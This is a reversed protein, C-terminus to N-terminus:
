EVTIRSLASRDGAKVSVFYIGPHLNSLDISTKFEGPSHSYKSTTLVKGLVDTVEIQIQKEDTTLEINLIGSTPNPFIKFHDISTQNTIGVGMTVTITKSATDSVCNTSNKETVNLTGTGINAFAVSVTNTGNGSQINGNLVFWNYSSGSNNGVTFNNAQGRPVTSLGTIVPTAPKPYVDFKVTDTTPCVPAGTGSYQKYYTYSLINTSPSILVAPKLPDFFYHKVSGAITSDVGNGTWTSYQGNADYPAPLWNHYPNNRAGDYLLNFVGGNSCWKVDFGAIVYPNGYVIVEAVSNMVCGGYSGPAKYLFNIWNSFGTTNPYNISDVPLNTLSDIWVKPISDQIIAGTPNFSWIGTGGPQNSIFNNLLAIKASKCVKVPAPQTLVPLSNVTVIISSDYARCGDLDRVQLTYRTTAPINISFSNGTYFPGNLPNAFTDPSLFWRYSYPVRGGHANYIFTLWNGSCVNTDNVSITLPTDVIKITDYFIKQLGSPVSANLKVLYNGAQSFNLVPTTTVNSFTDANALSYNNPVKSVTWVSNISSQLAGSQTYNCQVGFCGKRTQHIVMNLNNVVNVAFSMTIRGPNPCRSDKATVTFYWPISSIMTTDPTWCFKKSDERPGSIKRLSDVYNSAFTAGYPSLVGDWTLFTTDSVPPTSYPSFDTDKGIIDFCLQQGAFASWFLKPQQANLPNPPNTKLWPSKNAPCQQLWMLMDRTTSGILTPVGGITKWQKVMVAVEGVFYGSGSYPPTFSIDGSIFDCNIGLPSPATKVGGTYPMPADYSYPATYTVSSGAGALAPTFSYSLSDHDPDIAGMNYHFQMGGCIVIVPDNKFVPSSNCPAVCRNFITEIYFTNGAPGTNIAGSRCCETLSIRVMCCTTPVSLSGPNFIGQFTYKEVGPTYTGATICGMNNCVSKSSPCVSVNSGADSVSILSVNFTSFSTGNCTADAGTVSLNYSCSLNCSTSTCNGLPIGSCDRYLVLTVLYNGPTSTCAYTIEGGVNHSAKAKDSIFFCIMPLFFAYIFNKM